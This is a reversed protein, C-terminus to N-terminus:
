ATEDVQGGRKAADDTPQAPAAGAPAKAVGVMAARLLRDHLVYGPQMVQAIAGPPAETTEVEFVAQCTNPDFPEGVVGVTKINHRQLIQALEKEVMGVGDALQKLAPDEITEPMAELARALNDAVGIVDRALGTAGYRNAEERDKQGRRRANEADALARLREDKAEALEAELANVRDALAAAAAEADPLDAHDATELIEDAADPTETSPDDAKLPDPTQPSKGTESM